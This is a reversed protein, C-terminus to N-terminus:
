RAGRPVCWRAPSRGRPAGLGRASKKNEPPRVIIIFFARMPQATTAAVHRPIPMADGRQAPACILPANDFTVPDLQVPPLLASPKQPFEVWIRTLLPVVKCLRYAHFM